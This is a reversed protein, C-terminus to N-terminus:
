AAGIIKRLDKAVSVRFTSGRGLESTLMIDGGLNRAMSRVHALGIGEGPQDQTGSRRFLDFVRDHDQKAIGRGNDEIAVYIRRDLETGFRIKLCLPRTPDKYKVANDLLNGLIQDLALRDSIIPEIKGEISITGGAENLSHQINDAATHLLKEVDIPEPKLTRRGDRSLKLIANILGDMKRTSSRIFNIAEPLDELAAARADQLQLANPPTDTERIIAQIPVLSAELESTFGMINVLPARLDHTVIYAFRQIEDNARGLDATRERVREELGTNLDKIHAETEALQKTYRLVIIFSGGVVLLIILSGVSTVLRLGSINFQQHNFADAIAADAQVTLNSLIGNAENMLDLGSDTKVLALAKEPHGQTKAYTITQALESMKGKVIESLRGLAKESEPSAKLLSHILALQPEIKSRAEDYPVLYSEDSTLLYGRQGTEANLLLKHLNDLESTLRHTQSVIGFYARTESVLWLNASVLIVLTVFGVLIALITSRVFAVQSIPM